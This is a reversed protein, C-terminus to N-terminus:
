PDSLHREVLVARVRHVCDTLPRKTDIDVAEWTTPPARWDPALRQYIEWDADSGYREPLLLRKRITGEDARCTFLVFPVGLTRALEYFPARKGQDGFIADVLIREGQVLAEEAMRLLSSFTRETWETTYIGERFGNGVRSHEPVGALGKRVHDSSLVRFNESEGLAKALSSKGTGPLGTMLALCPRQRPPVLCGLAMLFHLRAKGRNKARVAPIVDTGVAQLGRVLGRVLHRYGTYFAFLDGDAEGSHRAWAELLEKAEPAFGHAELDMALFALDSLPDCCRYRPDFEVCDIILLDNPPQAEPFFHIHELRLDGHGDRAKKFREQIHVSHRPWGAHFAKFLKDFLEPSLIDASFARVQGFIQGWDEHVVQPLVWYSVEPGRGARGYFYSLKKALRDWLDPPLKGSELLRSLRAEEPLRRMKVAYDVPKGVGEFYLDNGKRTVPVVGEYVDGALRRNLEVEKLCFAKRKELTSYDVFPYQVAKKIKYAHDDTLFVLSIHTQEVGRLSAGRPFVLHDAGLESPLHITPDLITRGM